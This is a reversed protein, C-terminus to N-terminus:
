NMKSLFCDYEEIGTEVKEYTATLEMASDNIKRVDWLAGNLKIQQTEINCEWNGTQTYGNLYDLFGSSSIGYQGQSIFADESFTITGLESTQPEIRKNNGIQATADDIKWTGIFDKKTMKDNSCSGMSILSGLLIFGFVLKKM